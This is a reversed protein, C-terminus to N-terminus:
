RRKLEFLSDLKIRIYAVDERMFKMDSKAEMMQAKQKIVENTMYKAWGIMGAQIIGLLVMIIRIAVKWKDSDPTM